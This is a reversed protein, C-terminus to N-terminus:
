IGYKFNDCSFMGYKLISEVVWHNMLKIQTLTIMKQVICIIKLNISLQDLKGQIKWLIINIKM